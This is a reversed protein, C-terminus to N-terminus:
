KSDSLGLSDYPSPENFVDEWSKEWELLLERHGEEIRNIWSSHMLAKWDPNNGQIATPMGLEDRYLSEQWICISTYCPIFWDKQKNKHYDGLSIRVQNYTHLFLHLIWYRILVSDQMDGPVTQTEEFSYFFEELNKDLKALKPIVSKLEGTIGEHARLGTTDVEPYPPIVLVQFKATEAMLNIIRMRVAQVPNPQTLTQQIDSLINSFLRTKGEESWHKGIGKSKDDLVSKLYNLAAGYIPHEKIEKLDKRAKFFAILKGFM